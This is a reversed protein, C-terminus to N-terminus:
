TARGKQAAAASTRAGGAAAPELGAGAAQRATLPRAPHRPVRAPVTLGLTVLRRQPGSVILVHEGNGLRSLSQAAVVPRRVLGYPGLQDDPPAAGQGARSKPWTGVVAKARAQVGVATAFDGGGAPVLKEGTFGAFREAAAPDALRHLVLVNAQSALGEVRDASTTTLLAPLGASGGRDILEALV